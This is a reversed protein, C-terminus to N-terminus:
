EGILNKYAEADMLYDSLQLDEIVIRLIWGRDEPSDNILWPEDRLQENIELVKGTAPAFLDSATKVSEITGFSKAQELSAGIAPLEVFMIDGLESQAYTTIGVTASETHVALWLHDKSYYLQSM